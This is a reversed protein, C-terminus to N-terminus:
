ACLAEASRRRCFADRDDAAVENAAVDTADDRPRPQRAAAVRRRTAASDGRAAFDQALLAACVVALAALEVAVIWGVTLRQAPQRIWRRALLAVALLLTALLYFDALWGLFGVASFGRLANM